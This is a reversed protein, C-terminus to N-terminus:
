SPSSLVIKAESQGCWSKSWGELTCWIGKVLSTLRLTKASFASLSNLMSALALRMLRRHTILPTCLVPYAVKRVERLPGAPHHPDPPALDPDEVDPTLEVAERVDARVLCPERTRPCAM